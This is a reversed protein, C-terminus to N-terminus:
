FLEEVSPASVCRVANNDNRNDRNDNDIDGNNGNFEYANDSDGPHLTCVLREFTRNLERWFIGYYIKAEYSRV